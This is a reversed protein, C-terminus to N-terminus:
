RTAHSSCRHLHVMFLNLDPTEVHAIIIKKRTVDIGDPIPDNVENRNIGIM